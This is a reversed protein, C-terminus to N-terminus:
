AEVSEAGGTRGTTPCMQLGQSFGEILISRLFGKFSYIYINIIHSIYIYMCVYHTHIYIDCIIFIYIYLKLPKRREMRMSPNECPTWIDGVVPRV